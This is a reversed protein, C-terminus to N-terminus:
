SWDVNDGKADYDAAYRDRVASIFSVGLKLRQPHIFAGRGPKGHFYRKGDVIGDHKGRGDTDWDVGVYHKTTSQGGAGVSTVPGVYRVTGRDALPDECHFREGVRIGEIPAVSM